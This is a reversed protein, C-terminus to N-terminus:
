QADEIRKRKVDLKNADLKGTYWWNIGRRTTLLSMEFRNANSM